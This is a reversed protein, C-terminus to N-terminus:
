AAPDQRESEVPIASERAVPEAAGATQRDDRAVVWRKLPRGVPTSEFGGFVKNLLLLAALAALYAIATTVTNDAVSQTDRTFFPLASVSAYASLLFSLVWACWWVVITRRLDRARAEIIALEVVYVPAFFLNIVPILCGAYLQWTSRTEDRELRAFAAARRGILWNTMVVATAIMAFVALVSAAVGVWTAAGAVLPPLLISRNILLLGYRVVHVLAAFGFLVMTVFLTARVFRVSPGTRVVQAPAAETPEIHDQLGWRPTTAYRPTPGLTPVRRRRPPPAGPRVAIWRYGPPPRTATREGAKAQPPASLHQSWQQDPAADSPALLTGNCRPCWVRQRDRVNWRTACRSCVQIM